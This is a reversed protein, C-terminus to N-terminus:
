GPRRGAHQRAVPPAAVLKLQYSLVASTSLPPASDDYEQESGAVRRGAAALDARAPHRTSPHSAPTAPPQFFFKIFVVFVAMGAGRQKARVCRWWSKWTGTAAPLSIIAWAAGGAAAAGPQPGSRAAALQAVVCAACPPPLLSRVRAGSSSSSSLASAWMPQRGPESAAPQLGAPSHGLALRPPGAAPCRRQPAGHQKRLTSYTSATHFSSSVGIGLRCTWPWCDGSARAGAAWSTQAGARRELMGIRVM